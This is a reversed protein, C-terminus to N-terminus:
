ENWEDLLKQVEDMFTDPDGLKEEAALYSCIVVQVKVVDEDSVDAAAEYEGLPGRVVLEASRPNIVEGTQDFMARADAVLRIVDEVSYREPFQRRVAIYFAASIVESYGTLRGGAHLAKTLEEYREFDGDVMTRLIAMHEITAM